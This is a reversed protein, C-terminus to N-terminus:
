LKIRVTNKLKGRFKIYKRLISVHEGYPSLIVIKLMLNTESRLIVM